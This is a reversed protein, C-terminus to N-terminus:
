LDEADAPDADATDGEGDSEPAQGVEIAHATYASQIVSAEANFLFTAAQVAARHDESQSAIKAVYNRADEAQEASPVWGAQIMRMYVRHERNRTKPKLRRQGGTEGGHPAENGPM